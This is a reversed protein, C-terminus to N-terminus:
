GEQGLVKDRVGNIWDVCMQMGEESFPFEESIKLSDDTCEYNYPEPWCTCKLRPNLAEEEEKTKGKQLPEKAIRYRIGNDSGYFPSLKKYFELKFIKEVLVM